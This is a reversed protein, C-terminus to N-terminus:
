LTIGAVLYLSKRSPNAILSINLPLSWHDTVQIEKALSVGINVFAAASAYYNGKPQFGVFLLMDTTEFSRQYQLELYVSKSSDAGYFFYSGLLNFPMKEGGELLVQAELQHSTTKGSYNFFDMSSTDCFSWYDWVAFTLPGISKSLYFDTEQSGAGSLKYAGWAGLTFDKLTASMGPQISPSQGYEQGRWIYRSVLDINATTSITHVTDPQAFLSGACTCLVLLVYITIKGFIIKYPKLIGHNRFPEKTGFVDILINL